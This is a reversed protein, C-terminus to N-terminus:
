RKRERYAIKPFEDQVLGQLCRPENNEFGLLTNGHVDCTGVGIGKSYGNQVSYPRLRAIMAQIMSYQEGPHDPTGLDEYQVHIVRRAGSAMRSVSRDARMFNLALKAYTNAKALEMGGGTSACFDTFTFFRSALLMITDIDYVETDDGVLKKQPNFPAEAPDYIQLGAAAIAQKIMQHDMQVTDVLHDPVNTLALGSYCKNPSEIFGTASSDWSITDLFAVTDRTTPTQDEDGLRRKFEEIYQRVVEDTLGDVVLRLREVHEERGKPNLTVNSIHCVM